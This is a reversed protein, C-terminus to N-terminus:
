ELFRRVADTPRNPVHDVAVLDVHEATLEGFEIAVM